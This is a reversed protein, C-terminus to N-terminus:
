RVGPGADRRCHWQGHPPACLLRVRRRQQLLLGRGAVVVAGRQSRLRRSVVAGSGNAHRPEDTEVTDGARDYCAVRLTFPLAASSSSNSSGRRRPATAVPHRQGEGRKRSTCPASTPTIRAPAGAAGSTSLLSGLAPRRGSTQHRPYTSAALRHKRTHAHVGITERAGAWTPVAGCRDHRGTPVQFGTHGSRRAM